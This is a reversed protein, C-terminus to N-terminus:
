VQCGGVRYSHGSRRPLGVAKGRPMWPPVPAVLGVQCGRSLGQALAALRPGEAAAGSLTLGSHAVPGRATVM